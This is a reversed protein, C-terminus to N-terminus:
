EYGMIQATMSSCLREFATNNSDNYTRNMRFTTTGGTTNVLVPTYKYTTGQNVGNDIFTADCREPTSTSDTHWGITFCSIVLSRSGSPNGRLARNYTFTGDANKTAVAIYGGKEHTNAGWEGNIQFQLKVVGNARNPTIEVSLADVLGNFQNPTFSSPNGNSVAQDSQTSILQAYGFDLKYGYNADGYFQNIADGTNNPTSEVNIRNVGSLIQPDAATGGDKLVANAGGGSPLTLGTATGSVPTLTLTQGDISASKFCPNLNSTLTSIAGTNNGIATANNGVTTSLTSITGTNTGIATIEDDTISTFSSAGSLPTGTDATTLTIIGTAGDRGFATTFDNTDTGTYLKDANQKNLIMFDTLDGVEHQKISTPLNSNFSNNSTFDNTTDLQVINSASTITSGDPFQVENIEINNIGNMSRSFSKNGSM